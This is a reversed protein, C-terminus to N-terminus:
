AGPGGEPHLSARPRRGDGGGALRPLGLHNWLHAHGPVDSPGLGASLRPLPPLLRPAGSDRPAPPLLLHRVAYICSLAVYSRLYLLVSPVSELGRRTGHLIGM